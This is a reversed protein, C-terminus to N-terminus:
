PLIKLPFELVQFVRRHGRVPCDVGYEQRPPLERAGRRVEVGQASPKLDVQGITIEMARELVCSQQGHDIQLEDSTALGSQFQNRRGSLRRGPRDRPCMSWTQHVGCGFFLTGM